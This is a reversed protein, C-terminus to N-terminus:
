WDCAVTESDATQLKPTQIRNSSNSLALQGYLGNSGDGKNSNLIDILCLVSIGMDYAAYTLNMGILYKSEM